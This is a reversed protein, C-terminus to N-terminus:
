GSPSPTATSSPLAWLMLVNIGNYPLGNHRLPRTVRDALHGASWPQHWPLVGQELQQVIQDTVRQYIDCHAPATAQKVTPGEDAAARFQAARPFPDASRRLPPILAPAFRVASLPACSCLGFARFRAPKFGGRAGACDGCKVAASSAAPSRAQRHFSAPQPAVEGLAPLRLSTTVVHYSV